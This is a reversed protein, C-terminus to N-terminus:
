GCQAAQTLDLEPAPTRAENPQVCVALVHQEGVVLAPHALQATDHGSDRAAGPAIRDAEVAVADHACQLFGRRQASMHVCEHVREAMEGVPQGIRLPRM